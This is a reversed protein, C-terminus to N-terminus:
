YMEEDVQSLVGKLSEHVFKLLKKRKQEKIGYDAAFKDVVDQPDEEEFMILKVM